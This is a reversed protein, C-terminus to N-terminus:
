ETMTKDKLENQLLIYNQNAKEGYRKPVSKNDSCVNIQEKNVEHSPKELNKSLLTAWSLKEPKM